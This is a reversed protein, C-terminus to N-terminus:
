RGLDERESDPTRLARRVYRQAVFAALALVLLLGAVMGAQAMAALLQQIQQSFILGLGLFAASWLASGLIDYFVFRRWSKRLAGAMPAAVLSVGPVFKAAILSYGGWRTILTESQRVCSDPSLAIRRPCAQARRDREGGM